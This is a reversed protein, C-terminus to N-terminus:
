NAMARLREVVKHVADATHFIDQETTYRGVSFRISQNAQEKSLGMAILVHSPEMVLSHCASGNSVCVDNLGLLLAENDIGEFRMNSTNCVRPASSTNRITYEKILLLDELTDRYNKMRLIDEKVLESVLVAAAGMGVINATALTGSRLGREHGGGYVLPKLKVHPAVYLGGIAKPGYFKHASFAMLDINSADFIYKGVAQTADTMFLAGNEHAIDAYIDVPLLVGTENNAMMICVLITNEKFADRYAQMDVMGALDVPLYTVEVGITELYRCTDLVAPHETTVTIIHKPLGNRAPIGQLAINIAETAGATFYIDEENVDIMDAVQGRAVNVTNNLMRGMRHSSAANGYMDTLYPMMADLVKPDLPTTANNDLYIFDKKM